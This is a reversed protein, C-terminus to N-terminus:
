KGSGFAVNKEGEFAKIHAKAMNEITYKKIKNLSNQEMKKECNLM